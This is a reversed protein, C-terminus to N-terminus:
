GRAFLHLNKHQQRKEKAPFVVDFKSIFDALSCNQLSTPRRQYGKISNESEIDTSSDPLEQLSEIPKLLFTRRGPENTNVFVVSKSSNRLTMQLILYAAEQACMEVHTLFKNGIQRVQQKLSM